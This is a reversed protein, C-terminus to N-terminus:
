NDWDKYRFMRDGLIDFLIRLGKQTFLMGNAFVVAGVIVASYIPIGIWLSVSDINNSGLLGLVIYRLVSAILVLVSGHVLREAAFLLRDSLVSDEIKDSFSFCIAALSLLIAFAANIFNNSTQQFNAYNVIGWIMVLWITVNLVVNFIPKYLPPADPASM